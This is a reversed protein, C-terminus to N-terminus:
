LWDQDGGAAAAAAADEEEAEEEDVAADVAVAVVSGFVEPLRGSCLQKNSRGGAELAPRM